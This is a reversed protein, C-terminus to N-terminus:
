SLFGPTPLSAPSPIDTEVVPGGWLGPSKDNKLNSNLSSNKHSKIICSYAFPTWAQYTSPEQLRFFLDKGACIGSNGQNSSSQPGGSWVIRGCASRRSVSGERHCCLALFDRLLHPVVFPQWGTVDPTKLVSSTPLSTCLSAGSYTATSKPLPPLNM